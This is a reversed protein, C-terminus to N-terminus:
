KGLAALQEELKTILATTETHRDRTEQVIKEPASAVYKTNALRAELSALYAKKEDHQHELRHKRAAILTEDAEIWAEVTTGLYLGSGQEVLKVSGARALRAVLEAQEFLQKDTILIIPKSLQEEAALARTALVVQRVTEFESDLANTGKKNAKPWETIILQQEQWPLESWIAESVFPAIPHVLKLITELTYILLDYNPSVKSAEIYWDAFDDWLLSYVLQGADSFRYDEIAKATERTTVNLKSMMWHDAATKLEPLAPSYDEPLQGLIFRAVNWLKNNFNRYGEIKRESVAGRNGASIGITLALRLADTGYKETMVLPNIVNGKSKSMKKGHEDTILGWLYVTKFPVKGTRFIGFMIMRTVWIFLIERATAMVSTPYFTEFDEPGSNMLTAFPWQGSSFWTDFNDTEAEYNGAGYTAIAEAESAAIIYDPKTTDGTANYFVPIRIGWWNQRSINWDHLNELWDLAVKTINEPVIKVEGSKIAAIAPKKLEDVKM